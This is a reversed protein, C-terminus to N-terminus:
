DPSWDHLTTLSSEGPQHEQVYSAWKLGRTWGATKRVDQGEPLLKGFPAGSCASFIQVAQLLQTHIHELCYQSCMQHLM